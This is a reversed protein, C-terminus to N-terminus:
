SDQSSTMSKPPLVYYHLLKCEVGGVTIPWKKNSRMHLGRSVSPNGSLVYVDAHNCRQKLFQGLGQWISTINEPEDESNMGLRAGWPPNVVVLSPQTPPIYEKCNKCCLNILDHVGASKADKLCLSLAGEHVDNGLLALEKPPSIVAAAATEWCTKWLKGDYDHWTQFPWHQRMLGPARNCAMLAAEILFTGSGCMPDLLSLGHAFYNQNFDGFGAIGQNWGAITLVGAAIAENLSARHMADRYGRRHLSIGSMDRYLSAHDKYVSLFLPVDATAGGDEPPNPKFGGCADRISDCIADKARVSAFMSNNVQPCDHTRTQVAFNRFRWTQSRRPRQMAIHPSALVCRSGLNTKSGTGGGDDCEQHGDHSLHDDDEQVLLTKWDVSERVFEYIPDNRRGRRQPLPSSALQVLVRIACRLWLNANYATLFTGTFSVGSSGVEINSAAIAPSCLEAAVVDELGPACTAFFRREGASASAPSSIAIASKPKASICLSSGKHQRHLGHHHDRLSSLTFSLKLNGLSQM